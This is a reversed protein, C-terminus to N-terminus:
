ILFPLLKSSLLTRHTAGALLLVPAGDYYANLLGITANVLGVASTVACVGLRGTLRAYGDAIYSATQENRTDIIRLGHRRSALLFPDLGNGSLVSVFSVGRSQLWRTLLDAGTMKKNNEQNKM